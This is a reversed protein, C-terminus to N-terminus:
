LLQGRLEEAHKLFREKFGGELDKRWFEEPLPVLANQVLQEFAEKTSKPNMCDHPIINLFSPEDSTNKHFALRWYCLTGTGTPNFGEGHGEGFRLCYGDPDKETMKTNEIWGGM